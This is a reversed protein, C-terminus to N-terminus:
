KKLGEEELKKRIKITLRQIRKKVVEMNIGSIIAIQKFSYQEYYRWYLLKQEDLSLTKLLRIIEEKEFSRIVEQEPDVNESLIYEDFLPLKEINREKRIMKRAVNEIIIICYGRIKPCSLSTIKEINEVILLYGMQVADEADEKSRLFRFATSYFLGRYEKFLRDVLERQEDTLVAMLILIM